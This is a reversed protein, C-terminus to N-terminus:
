GYLVEDIKFEIKFTVGADLESECQIRGDLQSVVINYVVNLGLGSGGSGRNTTFFPDYIQPLFAKPIGKGNDSYVLTLLSGKQIVEITVHGHHTKGFGHTISNMILNTLIHSIAGPYTKIMLSRDCVIDFQHGKSKYEHKLSLLIMEIYEYLNFVVKEEIHQGVAIAKFSQVLAVARELNSKLITATETMKNLYLVFDQETMDDSEFKQAIKRNNEEVYSAATVSVGLPTNIEHAIGSVLSGLSAQKEKEVLERLVYAIREDKEDILIKLADQAEVLATVDHNSGLVADLDGRANVMPIWTVNWVQRKSGELQSDLTFTFSKESSRAQKLFGLVLAEHEKFVDLDTLKKIGFDSALLRFTKMFSNNASLVYGETDFSYISEEVHEVLLRYKEEQKKVEDFSAKVHHRMQDMAKVLTQTEDFRTQTLHFPTDWNGSAIEQAIYASEVIPKTMRTLFYGSLMTGILVVMIVVILTLIQRDRLGGVIDAEPVVVVVKWGLAQPRTLATVSTFYRQTGVTFTEVAETQGKVAEFANSMLSANEENSSAVRQDNSDLIFIMGNGKRTDEKLFDNIGQLRIDITVVAVLRGQEMVPLSVSLTAAGIEDVNFYIDSWEVQLSQKTPMYWPRIRPDYAEIQAVIPSVQTLGEYIVLLDQTREDKLMLSFDGGSENARIGLFRLSEDGYGIVSIQPLLSEIDVFLSTFIRELDSLDERDFLREEEIATTLVRGIIFPEEVFTALQQSISEGISQATKSGQHTSIWQYEFHWVVSFLILIFGVTIVFPQIIARKLSQKGM